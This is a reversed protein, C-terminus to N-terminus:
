RSVDFCFLLEQDRLYLRGNCVVPHTWIKGRDSRQTTQPDLRFRGLENWGDTSAEILVVDGDREGLCYFRGEAYAIAGKGLASRERWVVKESELEQCVWGARDSYGYLHDDLLIVGGHHNKIIKNRYVEEVSDDTESLRLLMGGVGYGSTVYVLGKHFIPTPVVANGGPWDVHWRVRGDALDLGVVQSALLQIGQIAGNHQALIISSYHSRGTIDETQWLLKGTKKSLAVIAGQEGGPTCLIKEEFILPSEAFGWKPVEGGLDQMARQWVLKGDSARTCILNGEGGLAYVFEGDVTPTGRPGDGWANELIPGIETSWVEDGTSVDIALLYEADNRTGMIYLRNGVIAPGSYGLGCNEFLWAQRPGEEPWSQLLGTEQSLDDRHPGRWQPWTPESAPSTLTLLLVFGLPFFLARPFFLPHRQSM